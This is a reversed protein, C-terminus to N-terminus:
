GPRRSASTAVEPHEIVWRHLEIRNTLAGALMRTVLFRGFTTLEAEAAAAALFVSSPSATATPVSTTPHPSRAAKVAAAVVKDPSLSPIQAGARALQAGVANVAKIPRSRLDADRFTVDGHGVDASATM